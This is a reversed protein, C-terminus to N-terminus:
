GTKGVEEIDLIQIRSDVTQELLTPVEGLQGCVLRSM